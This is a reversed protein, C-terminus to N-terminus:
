HKPHDHNNTRYEFYDEGWQTRLRREIWELWVWCRDVEVPHWAFWPKWDVRMPYRRQWRM